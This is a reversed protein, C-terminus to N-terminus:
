TPRDSVNLSEALAMVKEAVCILHDIMVLLAQTPAPGTFVPEDPYFYSRPRASSGRSFHGKLYAGVTNGYRRGDFEPQWLLFRCYQAFGAEPRAKLEKQAQCLLTLLDHQSHEKRIQEVTQGLSRLIGKGALEGAQLSLGLSIRIAQSTPDQTDLRLTSRAIKNM